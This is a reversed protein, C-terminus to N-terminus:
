WGNLVSFLQSLVAALWVVQWGGLKEKAKEKTRGNQDLIVRRLQKKKKKL